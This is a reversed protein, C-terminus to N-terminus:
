DCKICPKDSYGHTKAWELCAEQTSFCPLKLDLSEVKWPETTPCGEMCLKFEDDNSCTNIIIFTLIICLVIAINSKKM